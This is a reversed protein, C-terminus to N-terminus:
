TTLRLIAEPRTCINIPNMQAELDIRKEGTRDPTGLVYRPLGITNVASMWPAPAFRTIYMGPIGLPIVVAKNAPITASGLGRYNEFTFGGYNFIDLPDGERIDRAEQQNLYTGRVEGHNKLADFFGDSCLTHYGRAINGGLANRVTRKAATLAASIPGAFTSTAYPTALSLSQDALESINFSTYANFLQTSGDSDLVIGQIAGIRHYELTLDLTRAMKLLKWDRMETVSRMQNNTGFSRVGQIEDALLADELPIHPVLVSIGNRKDAIMSTGPAGRPLAPAISLTTNQREIVVSTTPVGAEEFIGLEGLRSPIYPLQNISATLTEMTFLDTNFIGALGDAM